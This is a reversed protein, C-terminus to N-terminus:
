NVLVHIEPYAGSTPETQWRIRELAVGNIRIGEVVARLYARIYQSPTNEPVYAVVTYQVDPKATEAAQVATNLAKAFYVRPENYRIILLPKDVSVADHSGLQAQAAQLPAAFAM